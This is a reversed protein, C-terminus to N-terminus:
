ASKMTVRKRCDSASPSAGVSAATVAPDVAPRATMKAPVVTAIETEPSARTPIGNTVLSPRPEAIVTIVATQLATVRSGAM